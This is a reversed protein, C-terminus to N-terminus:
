PEAGNCAPVVARGDNVVMEMYWLLLMSSKMWGLFMESGTHSLTVSLVIPNTNEMLPPLTKLDNRSGSRQSIPYQPQLRWVRSPFPPIPTSTELCDLEPWCVEPGTEQKVSFEMHCTLRRLNPFAHALESIKVIRGNIDLTHVDPWIHQDIVRGFPTVDGQPRPGDKWLGNKIFQLKGQLLSIAKLFTNGIYYLSRVKPRNLKTVAKYVAPHSQFLPEAHRIHLVRLVKTLLGAPSFAAGWGSRGDSSPPRPFVSDLLHLARLATASEPKNLVLQCFKKLCDPGDDVGPDSISVDSVIHPMAFGYPAQVGCPTMDLEAALKKRLSVNVRQPHLTSPASISRPHTMERLSSPQFAPRARLPITSTTHSTSALRPDFPPAIPYPHHHSSVHPINHSPLHYLASQARTQLGVSAILAVAFFSSPAYLSALSLPSSPSISAPALDDPVAQRYFSGGFEKCLAYSSVSNVFSLGLKVCSRSASACFLDVARLDHWVIKKVAALKADTISDARAIVSLMNARAAIRHMICIDAPSMTLGNEDEEDEPNTDDSMFSLDPPRYSVTVESRVKTPDSTQACRADETLVSSPDIMYICLHIHQDGKSQRVAKSEQREFKLEHGEWFDLGPTDIVSLLLRNYKSECIEICASQITETGKSPGRLFREVAAKQDATPTPSIDATDLLLRLLSTKGVGQAGAVMVNFTTPNRNHRQSPCLPTSGHSSKRTEFASPPPIPLAATFSTKPAGRPPSTATDQPLQSLDVLNSPWPIGQASLEPLSPSTRIFPPGDNDESKKPKRRFTLM